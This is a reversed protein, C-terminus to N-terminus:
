AKYLEKGGCQLNTKVQCPVKKKLTSASSFRENLLFLTMVKINNMVIFSKIYTHNLARLSVRFFVEICFYWSKNLMLHFYPNFEYWEFRNLYQIHLFLKNKADFILLSFQFIIHAVYKQWPQLVFKTAVCYPVNISVSATRLGWLNSIVYFFYM